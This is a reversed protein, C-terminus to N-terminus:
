QDQEAVFQMLKSVISRSGCKASLAIALGDNTAPVIAAKLFDGLNGLAYRRLTNNYQQGHFIHNDRCVFVNAWFLTMKEKLLQNTRVLREM